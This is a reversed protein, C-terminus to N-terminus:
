SALARTEALVIDARVAIVEERTFTMEYKLCSGRYVGVPEVGDRTIEVAEMHGSAFSVIVIDGALFYDPRVVLCYDEEGLWVEKGDIEVLTEDMITVIPTVIEFSGSQNKVIVDQMKKVNM